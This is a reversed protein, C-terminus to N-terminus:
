RPGDQVAEQAAGPSRGIVTVHCTKALNVTVVTGIADALIRLSVIRVLASLGLSAPSGPLNTSHEKWPTKTPICLLASKVMAASTLFSSWAHPTRAVARAVARAAAVAAAAVGAEVKTEGEIKGHLRGEIEPAAHLHVTCPLANATGAEAPDVMGGVERRSDDASGVRAVVKTMKGPM